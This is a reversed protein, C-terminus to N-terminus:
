SRTTPPWVQSLPKEGRHVRMINEFGFQASRRFTDISAGARHPLAFVNPMKLLPNNPDVPEQEFVDLGAAAITKSQLAKILEPEDVVAGRCTNILVATPKMLALERGGILHHTHKNYPVHLTVIDSEKLLTELSVREVGLRKEESKPVDVVDYYLLRGAWGNLRQAVEKGIHGLGVIGVTKGTLERNMGPDLDQRWKKQDIAQWQKELNRYVFLMLGIAVEAVAIRNSGGNNSVVVGKESLIDLPLHEFGASWLQIFKLKQAAQLMAPTASGLAGVMYEADRCAAIKQDEPSDRWVVTIDMDSPWQPIIESLMDNPIGTIFAVKPKTM